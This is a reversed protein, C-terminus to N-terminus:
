NNNNKHYLLIQVIVLLIMMFLGVSTSPIVDFSDFFNKNFFYVFLAAIGGIILLILGELFLILYPSVYKKEMIWKEYVERSAYVFYFFLFWLIENPNNEEQDKLENNKIIVIFISVIFCIGISFYHHRHIKYKFIFLCLIICFLLQIMKELIAFPHSAKYGEM